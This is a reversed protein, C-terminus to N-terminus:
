RQKAGINEETTKGGQHQLMKVAGISKGVVAAAEDFIGIAYRARKDFETVTLRAIDICRGEHEIVWAWPEAKTGRYLAEADERTYPALNRSDEGYM